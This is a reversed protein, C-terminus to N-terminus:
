EGGVEVDAVMVELEFVGVSVMLSETAEVATEIRGRLPGFVAETEKM